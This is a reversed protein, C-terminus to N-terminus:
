REPSGASAEESTSPPADLQVYWLSNSGYARERVVLDAGLESRMVARHPAHFVLVGEPALHRRVLADLARLV